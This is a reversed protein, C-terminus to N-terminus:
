VKGSARLESRAQALLAAGELGSAMYLQDPDVVRSLAVIVHRMSARQHGLELLLVSGSRVTRGQCSYYCMSHQLRLLQEVDEFGM